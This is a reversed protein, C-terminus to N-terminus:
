LYYNALLSNVHIKGKVMVRAAISNGMYVCEGDAVDEFDQMLEKNACFHRSARIDYIWEASNAVLNAEEVVVCIVETDKAVNAQAIPKRNPQSHM